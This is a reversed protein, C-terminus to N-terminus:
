VTLKPTAQKYLWATTQGDLAVYRVRFWYWMGEDLDSVTDLLVNGAVSQIYRFRSIVARRGISQFPGAIQIEFKDAAIGTGLETWSLDVDGAATVGTIATLEDLSSVPADVPPLVNESGAGWLRVATHNLKMHANDGSMIFPDGFADTGPHDAAWADWAEMQLITLTAWIRSVWGLVSRIRPRVQDMTDGPNPKRKASPGSSTNSFTIGGFSGSAAQSMLPNQVRAM